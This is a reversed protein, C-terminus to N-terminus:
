PMPADRGQKPRRTGRRSVWSIRAQPRARMLRCVERSSARAATTGVDVVDPKERADRAHIYADFARGIHGATDSACLVHVAAAWLEHSPNFGLVDTGNRELASVYAHVRELMRNHFVVARKPPPRAAAPETVRHGNLSDFADDSELPVLVVRGLGPSRLRHLVYGLWVDEVVPPGWTRNLALLRRMEDDLLPSDAVERALRASLTMLWGSVFPFPGECDHADTCHQCRQRGSALGARTLFPVDSGCRGLIRTDASTTAATYLGTLHDIAARWRTPNYATSFSRPHFTSREYNHWAFTGHLVGVRRPDHRVTLARLLAEWAPTRVYSDDDVKCIWQAGPFLRPATRLWTVLTLVRGRLWDAVGTPHTGADVPLLLMDDAHITLERQLSQRDAVLYFPDHLSSARLLFRVIVSHQVNPQLMWTQRAVERRHAVHPASMVGLLIFPLNAAGSSTTVEHAAEHAAWREPM